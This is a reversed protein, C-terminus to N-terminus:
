PSDNWECCVPGIAAYEQQWRQPQIWPKRNGPWLTICQLATGFMNLFCETYVAASLKNNSLGQITNVRVTRCRWISVRHTQKGQWVSGFTVTQGRGWFIRCGSRRCARQWLTISYFIPSRECKRWDLQKKKERKGKATLREVIKKHLQILGLSHAQLVLEDPTRGSFPHSVSLLLLLCFLLSFLSSSPLSLLFSQSRYHNGQLPAFPVTGRTKLRQEELNKPAESAFLVNCFFFISVCISLHLSGYSWGYSGLVCDSLRWM